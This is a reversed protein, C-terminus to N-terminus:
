PRAPNSGKCVRVYTCIGSHGAVLCIEGFDHYSARGSAVQSDRSIASRSTSNIPRTRDHDSPRPPVSAFIRGSPLRPSANGRAHGSRTALRPKPLETSLWCAAVVVVLIAPRSSISQKSVTWILTLVRLQETPRGYKRGCERMECECSELGIVPLCEM